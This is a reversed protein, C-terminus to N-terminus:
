QNIQKSISEYIYKCHRLIYPLTAEFKHDEQTKPNIPNRQCHSLNQVNTIDKKKIFKVGGWHKPMYFIM